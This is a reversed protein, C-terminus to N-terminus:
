ASPSLRLPMDISTAIRSALADFHKGADRATKAHSGLAGDAATLDFIPKRAEQAMPMLSRYHKLIGLFHPDHEFDVPAEEEDPNGLVHVWYEAPIRELWQGYAKAVKDGHLSPQVIIYGAPTMDGSPLDLTALPNKKLRERWQSRWARLTPGLNRLGQISFLDAGLPTVLHQAALLAARNIAGLNPGVDILVIDAQHARAAEVLMRHFASTIRFAAPDQDLCRPWQDSLKAEFSALRLDGVALRLRDHVEECPWPRIDGTAQILPQLAGFVSARRDDDDCWLDELRSEDLFMATLNSQPDLDAALVRYGQDVYKWALHFVVSTKGVGGKNNFFGVTKM